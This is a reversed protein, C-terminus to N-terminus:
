LVNISRQKGGCARRVVSNHAYEGGRKGRHLGARSYFHIGSFCVSGWAFRTKEREIPLVARGIMFVRVDHIRMSLPSAMGLCQASGAKLKYEM